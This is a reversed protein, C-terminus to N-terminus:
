KIRSKLFSYETQGQKKLVTLIENLFIFSIFKNEMIVLIGELGICM